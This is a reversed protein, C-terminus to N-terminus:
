CEEIFEREFIFAKAPCNNYCAGCFVCKDLDVSIKDGDDNIAAEPCINYCIKCNICLRNDTLNFGNEVIKKFMTSKQIADKPCNIGCTECLICKDLDVLVKGRKLTIAKEPCLEECTGCSICDDSVSGDWSVNKFSRAQQIDCVKVCNGCSVCYGDLKAIFSESLTNVPCNEIAKEFSGNSISPDFKMKGNIKILSGDECNESCLGCNLCSVITGENEKESKNINVEFNKVSIADQPCNKYCNLCLVCKDHDINGKNIADVPCLDDCIRCKVCDKQYTRVRIANTPCYYECRGCFICNDTDTVVSNRVVEKNSTKSIKNNNSSTTIFNALNLSNLYENQKDERLDFGDIRANEPCVESCVGCRACIGKTKGNEIHISSVPCSFECFGCGNCKAKDVVYGDYRNKFIAHNPCIDFCTGCSICGFSKGDILRIAETPCKKICEGIGKCKNTSLFMIRMWHNTILINFNEYDMM